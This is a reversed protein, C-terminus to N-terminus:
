DLFVSSVNGLPSIHFVKSSRVFITFCDKTLAIFLRQQFQTLAALVWRFSSLNNLKVSPTLCHSTINSSRNTINMSRHMFLIPKPSSTVINAYASSISSTALDWITKCSASLPQFSSSLSSSHFYVGIFGLHHHYCSLSSIAILISPTFKFSTFSKLYRRTM